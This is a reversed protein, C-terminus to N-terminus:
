RLWKEAETELVGGFLNLTRKGPANIRLKLRKEGWEAPCTKTGITLQIREHVEIRNIKGEDQRMEWHHDRGDDEDYAELVTAVKGIGVPPNKCSRHM